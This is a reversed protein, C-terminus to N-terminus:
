GNWNGIGEGVKQDTIITNSICSYLTGITQDAEIPFTKDEYARIYFSFGSFFEPSPMLPM